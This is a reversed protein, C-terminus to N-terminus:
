FNSHDDLMRVELALRNKLAIMQKIYKKRQQASKATTMNKIVKDVEKNFFDASDELIKKHNIM